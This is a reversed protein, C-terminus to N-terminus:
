LSVAVCGNGQAGAMENGVAQKCATLEDNVNEMWGAGINGLSLELLLKRSQVLGVLIANNGKAEACLKTSSPARSERQDVVVLRRLLLKLRSVPQYPHTSSLTQLKCHM